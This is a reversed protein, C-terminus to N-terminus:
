QGETRGATEAEEVDRGGGPTTSRSGMTVPLGLGKKICSMVALCPTCGDRDIMTPSLSSVSIRHPSLVPMAVSSTMVPPRDLFTVTVRVFCCASVDPAQMCPQGHM